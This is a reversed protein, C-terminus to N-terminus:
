SKTYTMVLYMWTEDNGPNKYSHPVDAKFVVADGEELHWRTAGAQLDLRGKAVV